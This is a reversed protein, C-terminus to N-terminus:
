GHNRGLSNKSERCGILDFYKGLNNANLVRGMKQHERWVAQILEKMGIRGGNSAALFAAGLVINKINGGSLRFQKALFEYDIEQERPAEAPFLVQWIQRRRAEDPFPFEVIFQLRRVFADDLNQRLNTALIAVGEYQEMKQLLYSIEINAYRDHSDRVESRKGFLADAEDFFLIANAHEAITFIRDLNKETEGIYKSIVGSLDIKYLDLELANAIIEAAMTKGTGSPGAFLASVGKGYSLKRDFGWEGFVRHRDAVRSCIERLQILADEPLVIDRWSYRPEIKWALAALDQGSQLRAANFLETTIAEDFLPESEAPSADSSATSIPVEAGLRARSYAAAAADAIQGPSLRFRGSLADLTQQELTTGLAELNSRWCSRRQEFDPLPISIAVLGLPKRGAPGGAASLPQRSGLIVVGSSESLERWLCQYPQAREDSRLADVEDLYLVANKLFAERFLLQLRLEFDAHTPSSSLGRALDVYLLPAGLEHALTAAASRKGAGRPGYFCLSLRGGARDIRRAVTALSRKVEADLSSEELPGVLETLECFSALREDLGWEGLLRRVIQGDLKLHHALLPPQLQTPDTLLHILGHRLLPADPSFNSRREFKSQASRCLLNLALDVSPRRRTVDDQLYAYLREYRLDLEPALAIVLVGLDFRSLNYAFALWALTSTEELDGFDFVDTEDTEDSRLAPGGPERDLLREVEDPSVHLGRFRDVLSEPGYVAEAAVLARRLAGDLRGLLSLLEARGQFGGTNLEKEEIMAAMFIAPFARYVKGM